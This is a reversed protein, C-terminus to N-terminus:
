YRHLLLCLVEPTIYMKPFVHFSERYENAELCIRITPLAVPPAVALKAVLLFYWLCKTLLSSMIKLNFNLFFFHLFTRPLLPPIHVQAGSHKNAAPCASYQVTIFSQMCQPM